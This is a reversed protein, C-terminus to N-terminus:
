GALFFDQMCFIFQPTQILRFFGAKVPPSASLSNPPQNSSIATNTNHGAIRM